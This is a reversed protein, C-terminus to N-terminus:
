QKKLKEKLFRKVLIGCIHRRYNGTSRIDDIPTVEKKASKSAKDILQDTLKNDMLLKETKKLRVPVEAVSGFVIAINNVIDGDLSVRFCAMVKSIAQAKRTGIKVFQSKEGLAPKPIKFKVGQAKAISPWLLSASLIGCFTLIKWIRM